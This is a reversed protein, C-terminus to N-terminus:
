MVGIGLPKRSKNNGTTIKRLKCKNNGTYQVEEKGYIVGTIKRLKCKYNETVQM